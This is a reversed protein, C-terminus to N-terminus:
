NVIVILQFLSVPAAHPDFNHNQRGHILGPSIGIGKWLACSM